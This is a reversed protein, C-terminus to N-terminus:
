IIKKIILSFNESYENFNMKYVECEITKGIEILSSVYEADCNYGIYIADVKLGVECLDVLKRGKQELSFDSYLLRYENEYNWFTHKCSLLLFFYSFYKYFDNTPELLNKEYEKYMESILSTLIVASKIRVSEYSIPFIRNPNLVLYRICYGKHNNAYHAWMPMNNGNSSFCSILTTDKFVNLYKEIDEVKCDTDKLKEIDIIMM